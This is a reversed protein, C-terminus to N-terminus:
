TRQEPELVLAIRMPEGIDEGARKVNTLGGEAPHTIGRLESHHEVRVRRDPRRSASPVYTV